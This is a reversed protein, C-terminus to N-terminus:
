SQGRVIEVRTRSNAGDTYGHHYAPSLAGVRPRKAQADNWGRQYQMVESARQAAKMTPHIAPVM